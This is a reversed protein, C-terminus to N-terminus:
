RVVKTARGVFSEPLRMGIMEATKLNVGYEMGEPPLFGLSSPSQGGIVKKALVGAQRGIRVFDPGIALLAGKDVLPLAPAILPLKERFTFLLIAQFAEANAVVPDSTMWFADIKGKLSDLAPSIEALSRAHAKVLSLGLDKLVGEAERLPGAGSDPNAITGIRKAGPSMRSILEIQDKEPVKVSIGFSVGGLLGLKEPNLVLCFLLPVNPFSKKALSSARTGIAIIVRPHRSKIGEVEKQAGDEEVSFEAIDLGSVSKLGELVSLHAKIGKEFVVAASGEDALVRFPLFFLALFFIMM